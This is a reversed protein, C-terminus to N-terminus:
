GEGLEKNENGGLQKQKVKPEQFGRRTHSAQPNGSTQVEHVTFNAPNLINGWNSKSAKEPSSSSLGSAPDNEYSFGGQTELPTEQDGDTGNRRRREGGRSPRGAAGGTTLEKGTRREGRFVAHGATQRPM